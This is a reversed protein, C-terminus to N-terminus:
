DREGDGNQRCVRQPSDVAAVAHIRSRTPFSAAAQLLRPWSSPNPAPMAAYGLKIVIANPGVRLRRKESETARGYPAGQILEEAARQFAEDHM